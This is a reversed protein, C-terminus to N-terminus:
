EVTTHKSAHKCGLYSVVAMPFPPPGSQAPAPGACPSKGLVWPPLAHCFHAFQGYGPTFVEGNCAKRPPLFIGRLLKPVAFILHLEKSYTNVCSDDIEVRTAWGPTPPCLLPSPSFNKELAGHTRVLLFRGPSAHVMLRPVRVWHHQLASLQAALGSGPNRPHLGGQLMWLLSFSQIVSQAERLDICLSACSVSRTGIFLLPHAQFAMVFTWVQCREASAFGPTTECPGALREYPSVAALIRRNQVLSSHFGVPCSCSHLGAGPAGRTRPPCAAAKGLRSDRPPPLVRFLCELGGRSVLSISTLRSLISPRYLSGVLPGCVISFKAVVGPLEEQWVCPRM